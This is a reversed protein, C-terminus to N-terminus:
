FLELIDECHEQRGATINLVGHKKDSILTFNGGISSEFIFVTTVSDFIKDMENLVDETCDGTVAKSKFINFLEEERLM